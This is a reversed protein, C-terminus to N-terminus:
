EYAATATYAYVRAAVPPSFIDHVLIQTIAEFENQLDRSHDTYPEKPACQVLFFSVFLVTLSPFLRNM